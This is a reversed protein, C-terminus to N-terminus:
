TRTRLFANSIAGLDPSESSKLHIRMKTGRRDEIELTCESFRTPTPSILEVFAPGNTERRCVAPSASAIRDKLANYDLGLAHAITAPRHEKALKAASDWIDEPIRKGHRRTQRWSQLRLRLDEIDQHKSVQLPGISIKHRM